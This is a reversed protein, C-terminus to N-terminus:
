NENALRKPRTNIALIYLIDSNYIPQTIDVTIFKTAILSKITNLPDQDPLIDISKVIQCVEEILYRGTKLTRAILELNTFHSETIPNVSHRIPDTAWSINKSQIETLPTPSFEFFHIDLLEWWVREIDIKELVRLNNLDDEPKVNYAEHWIEGHKKRTVLFDTTIVSLEGTTPVKPHEVGITNSIKLSLDLPILPFQERIDIVSDAFEAIYFFQTENKSLTHHERDSKIGQIKSSKGRSKVDQVRLWPKYESGVGLGYKNRLARKYDELGELKRGRSM